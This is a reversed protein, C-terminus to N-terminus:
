SWKKLISEVLFVEDGTNENNVIIHNQRKESFKEFIESFVLHMKLTEETSLIHGERKKSQLRKEIIGYSCRVEIWLVQCKKVCLAELRARLSNLHFVEDMAVIPVGKSFVGFAHELAKQYYNWRTEPPDIQTKVLIPDVDKKKFDDIDIIKAGTKKSVLKSITSKGVGPLGTFLLLKKFNKDQM